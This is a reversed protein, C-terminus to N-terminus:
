CPVPGGSDPLGARYTWRGGLLTAAVPMRRLRAPDREDPEDDLVVLDAVRGPRLPGHPGSSAALAVALPLHQEPHWPARGDASRHVAAAMAVWPDLPAVPADSGLVLGAGADLLARYAFSRHTRGAWYRDAVDRDDVAHEPQVSAVVGLDAFRVLDAESLLQAHEVRGRIGTAAFADLVLTNAADGIAHVAAEIGAARATRLLPVLQEPPVLLMGCPHEAPGAAPDAPYPDACYATRTNLSGDTVVKLPGMTLLGDTDAVADGTRLGRRVADELRSPWVAAVVRLVDIGRHIRRTWADLPFPSEFDVIGVVGRAAAARAAEGAAAALVPEPVRRVDEMIPHWEQERVIGTSGAPFGYRHGAETNLWCCHLDGSVLVVPIEGTVADLLARHPRDPWLGDRFGFGVLIEGAVPRDARVREGVLAVAEAASRAGSLDLRRRALAWQDFHVHNDWLGPVVPRGELPVGLGVGTGPPTIAVIRDGGITLDVVRGDVRADRLVVPARAEPVPRGIV